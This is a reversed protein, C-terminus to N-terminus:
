SWSGMVLLVRNLITCMYYVHVRIYVYICTYIHCFKNISLKRKCKRPVPNPTPSFHSSYKSMLELVPATVCFFAKLLCTVLNTVSVTLTYIVRHNAPMQQMQQTGPLLSLFRWLALWQNPLITKTGNPHCPRHLIVGKNNNLSSGVQM